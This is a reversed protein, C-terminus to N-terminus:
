EHAATRDVAANQAEAKELQEILQQISADKDACRSEAAEARLIAAYLAMALESAAMQQRGALQEAKEITSM